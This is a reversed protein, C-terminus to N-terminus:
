LTLKNIIRQLRCCLLGTVSLLLKYNIKPETNVQLGYWRASVHSCHLPTGPVRVTCFLVQCEYVGQDAASSNLIRLNWDSAALRPRPVQMVLSKHGLTLIECLENNQQM